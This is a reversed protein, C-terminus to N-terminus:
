ASTSALLGRVLVIVDQVSRVQRLREEKLVAGTERELRAALAVADISDLDLDERLRAAPVVAEADIEFETQFVDRLLALVEGETM